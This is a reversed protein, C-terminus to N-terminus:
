FALRAIRDKHEAGAGFLVQNLKARKFFLHCDHEWTFGIGGHLQIADGAISAYADCAYFKANSAWVSKTSEDSSLMRTSNATLAGAAEQLIKWTACRHKLAQFSGIPRGFQNRMKLYDVTKELIHTAGGMSDCALAVCAHDFLDTWAQEEPYFIRSRSVVVGDLHVDCLQRTQDITPRVSIAVGQAKAEIIALGVRESADILPVLLLDTRAADLLNASVGNLVVADGNDSAQVPATFSPLGICASIEGAAIKPLWDSKQAESGSRNIAASALVTSMFPLPTLYRGFEEYGIAAASVGLGLGDYQEDICIGLWGLEAIKAWMKTHFEGPNELARRVQHSDSESGLFARITERLENLEEVQMM